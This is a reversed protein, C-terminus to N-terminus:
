LSRAESLPLYANMRVVIGGNVTKQTETKRREFQFCFNGVDDCVRWYVIVDDVRLHVFLFGEACLLRAARSMQELKEATILYTGFRELDDFSMRRSKVEAVAAVVGNKEIVADLAAASTDDTVIVRVGFKEAIRALVLRQADIFAVAAPTNCDLSM